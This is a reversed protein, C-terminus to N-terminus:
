LFLVLLIDGDPDTDFDVDVSRDLFLNIINYQNVHSHLSLIGVMQQKSAPSGPFSTTYNSPRLALYSVTYIGIHTQLGLSWSCPPCFVSTEDQATPCLTFEM